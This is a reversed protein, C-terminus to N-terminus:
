ILIPAPTERPRRRSGGKAAADRRLPLDLDLAAAPRTPAAMTSSRMKGADVAITIIAVVLQLETACYFALAARDRLGLRHHYLMLAPSGRVVLFLFSSFWGASRPPRASPALDFAIGSTVFFPSSFDFGVAILKSEFVALRSM